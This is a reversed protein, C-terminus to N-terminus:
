WRGNKMREVKVPKWMKIISTATESAHNRWKLMFYVKQLTCVHM